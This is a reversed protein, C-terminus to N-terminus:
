LGAVKQATLSAAARAFAAANQVVCVCVLRNLADRLYVVFSDLGFTLLIFLSVAATDAGAKAYIYTCTYIHIHIHIHIYTYIYLYIHVYM